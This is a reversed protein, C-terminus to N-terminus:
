GIKVSDSRRTRGRKVDTFVATLSQAVAGNEANATERNSIATANEDNKGGIKVGGRGNANERKSSQRRQEHENEQKSRRFLPTTLSQALRGTKWMRRKGIKPDDNRERRERTRNNRRSRERKRKSSQREPKKAKLTQFADDNFKVGGARKEADGM